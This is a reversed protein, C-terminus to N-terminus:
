KLNGSQMWFIVCLIIDFIVHILSSPRFGNFISFIFIIIGIILCVAYCLIGIRMFAASEKWLALCVFILGAVGFGNGILSILVWIFNGELQLSDFFGYVCNIGVIAMIVLEVICWITMKSRSPPERVDGCEM